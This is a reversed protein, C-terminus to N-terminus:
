PTGYYTKQNSELALRDIASLASPFIIIDGFLANEFGDGAGGFVVKTIGPTGLSFSQMIGNYAGFSVAGNYIESIAAADGVLLGTRLGGSAGAYMALSGSGPRYLTAYPGNEGLTDSINTVNLFQIVSSRTLPQPLALSANGMVQTIGDTRVMPRTTGSSMRDIVGANVIRPQNAATAQLLPRANGSQDYMTTIFGSGNVTTAATTRCYDKATAGANAWAAALYAGSIGDGAFATIPDVAANLVGCWMSASTSASTFKLSCIFWGPFGPVQTISSGTGFVTTAIGNLLDFSARGNNADVVIGVNSYGAAKVLMSVCYPNGAAMSFTNRLNHVANTTDASIKTATGNPGQITEGKVIAFNAWAPQNIDQSYTLLNEAGVHNMLGYADLDGSALFGIDAEANDSSRRRVRMASGTYEDTLRRPSAAFATAPLSTLVASLRTRRQQSTNSCLM